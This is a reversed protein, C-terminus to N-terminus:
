ADPVPRTRGPTDGAEYGIETWLHFVGYARVPSWRAARALVQASSTAELARRLVLDGAPCADRDGLARVALFDVTWAGIGWLALLESRVREAPGDLALGGACAEALGHLTRARSRTLGLMDRLQLAPVTAIRAARPFVRLGHEGPGGLAAVLRAQLTRAAALSVQQGLVICAASEFPDFSGLVRLGPRRRVLPALLPDGALTRRVPALDTELDFYRRVARAVADLAWSPAQVEVGDERLRMTVYAPGSATGIMRAYLGRGRDVMELGSVAHAQLAALAAHADFPGCAPLFRSSAQSPAAGSVTRLGSDPEGRDRRAPRPRDARDLAAGGPSLDYGITQQM